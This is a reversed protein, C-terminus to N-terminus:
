TYPDYTGYSSTSPVTYSLNRTSAFNDNEARDLIVMAVKNGFDESYSLKDSEIQAALDTHYKQYMQEILQANDPKLTGFISLAIRYLSENVSATYNLKEASAVPMNGLGKIQGELSRFEGMGPLAAQYLGIAGYAYIRSGQPPNKGESQVIMRYVQMWDTAVKSSYTATQAPYVPTVDQKQCSQLLFFTAAVFFVSYFKTM